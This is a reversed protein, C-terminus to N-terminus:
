LLFFITLILHRFLFFYLIINVKILYVLATVKSIDIRDFDLACM